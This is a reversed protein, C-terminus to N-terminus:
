RLITFDVSPRFTRSWVEKRRIFAPDLGPVTALPSGVSEPALGLMPRINAIPTISYIVPTLGTFDGRRFKAMMAQDLKMDVKQGKANMQRNGANMDIGGLDTREMYSVQKMATDELGPRGPTVINVDGVPDYSVWGLTGKEGM